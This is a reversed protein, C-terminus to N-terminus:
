FEMIGLQLLSESREDVRVHDVTGLAVAAAPDDVELVDPGIVRRNGVVSGSAFLQDSRSKQVQEWTVDTQSEEVLEDVRRLGTLGQDDVVESVVVLAVAGLVVEVQAPHLDAVRQAVAPAVHGFTVLEELLELQERLVRRVHDHTRLGFSRNRPDRGRHRALKPPLRLLEDALPDTVEGVGVVAVQAVLEESLQVRSAPARDLRAQSGQATLVVVEIEAGVVDDVLLPGQVRPNNAKTVDVMLHGAARGDLDALVDQVGCHAGLDVGVGQEPSPAVILTPNDVELEDVGVLRRDVVVSDSAFLQNARAEHRHQGTM